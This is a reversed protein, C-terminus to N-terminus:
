TCDFVHWSEIDRVRIDRIRRFEFRRDSDFICKSTKELSVKTNPAKKLDLNGSTCILKCKPYNSGTFSYDWWSRSISLQCTRLCNTVKSLILTLGPNVLTDLKGNSVKKLDLNGSTCILKCKPYNSSSFFLGLLKSIDLTSQVMNLGKCIYYQANWMLKYRTKKVIVIKNSRIM